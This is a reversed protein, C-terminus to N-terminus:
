PLFTVIMNDVSSTAAAGMNTNTPISTGAMDEWGLVLLPNSPVAWSRVEGEIPMEMEESQGSSDVLPSSLNLLEDSPM